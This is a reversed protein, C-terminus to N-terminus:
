RKIMLRKVVSGKTTKILVLYNGAAYNGVEVKIKQHTVRRMEFLSLGEITTISVDPKLQHVKSLDIEVYHDAPNPYVVVEADRISDDIISTVVNAVASVAIVTEGLTSTMVINGTYTRAETPNFIVEM